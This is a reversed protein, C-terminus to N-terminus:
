FARRRRKGPGTTTMAATTTPAAVTNGNADTSTADGGVGTGTQTTGRTDNNNFGVPQILEKLADPPSFKIHDKAFLPGVLLGVFIVLLAFYLIAYRIVRRKRLKNQKLSYIPPRIQRSRVNASSPRPGFFM